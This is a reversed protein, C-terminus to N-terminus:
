QVTCVDKSSIANGSFPDQWTNRASISAAEWLTVLLLLCGNMGIARIHDAPLVHEIAGGV